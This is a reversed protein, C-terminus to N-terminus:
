PRMFVQPRELGVHAGGMIKFDPANQPDRRRAITFKHV